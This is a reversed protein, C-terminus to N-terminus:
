ELGNLNGRIDATDLRLWSGAYLYYWSPELIVVKSNTSDKSLRYGIVMNQLLKPNFEPSSTLYRFADEGSPLEVKKSDSLDIELSFYPRKYQYIEEAGWSQRIETMGQENFVPYGKTYLRFVIKKEYVSISSYRYDDTWGGHENVFNISRKLVEEQDEEVQNYTDQGPNVYMLMNTLYDLNMFSRDDTYQVGNPPFDRRVKNPDRFLANKFKDPDITESIYQYRTMEISKEPLYLFRNDPLEMAKYKDYLKKNGNAKTFLAEVREPNIHTEYAKGEVTSIFYVVSGDQSDNAQRIVIRDFSDRPFHDEIQIIGKYLNFPVIDPYFIVARTGSNLLDKIKSDDLIQVTGIDYFGWSGIEKILENMIEPNNTGYDEGDLHYLVHSPKILESVDRQEAILIEHMNPDMADLKPQYTWLNWTLLISFVILISLVISKGIEYRM